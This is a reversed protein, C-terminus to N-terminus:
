RYSRVVVQERARLWDRVEGVQFVLMGDLKRHPIEKVRTLRYVYSKGRGLAQHLEHIGLRTEAPATWLRERWTAPTPPSPAPRPVAAVAERILDALASALREAPAPATDRAAM